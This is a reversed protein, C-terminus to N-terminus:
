TWSTGAVHGQEVARQGTKTSAFARSSTIDAPTEEVKSMSASLEHQRYKNGVTDLSSDERAWDKSNVHCPSATGQAVDNAQVTYTWSTCRLPRTLHQASCAM